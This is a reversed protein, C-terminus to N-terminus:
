NCNNEPNGYASIHRVWYRLEIQTEDEVTNLGFITMLNEGTPTIQGPCKIVFDVLDSISTISGILNNGHNDIVTVYEPRITITVYDGAPINYQLEISSDITHNTIIPNDIPGTIIIDIQDGDWTGTYDINLQFFAFTTSTL